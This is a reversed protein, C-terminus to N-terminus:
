EAWAAIRKTIAEPVEIHLFHGVDGCISGVAARPAASSADPV